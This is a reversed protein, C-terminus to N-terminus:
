FNFVTLWDASTCTFGRAGILHRLVARMHRAGYVVAISTGGELAIQRDLHQILREDRLDLIVRYLMGAEPSWDVLEQQSPADELSMGKAIQERTRGRLRLGVIPAAVFIVVRLWLPVSKWAKEFEDSSLDAAIIEASSAIQRPSRPQIVLANIKSSKIWRYSRSIHMAIPSDVGEMLVVDHSFADAYVARYFDADGIHVMPFLTVSGVEGHRTLRIRASRLGLSSAELIQM